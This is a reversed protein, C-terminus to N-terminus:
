NLLFSIAVSARVSWDLCTGIEIDGRGEEDEDLEAYQDFFASRADFSASKPDGSSKTTTVTSSSSTSRRLVSNMAGVIGAKISLRKMRGSM